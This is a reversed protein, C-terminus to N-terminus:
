YGLKRMEHEVLELQEPTNVSLSECPKLVPLADVAYGAQRLISPCDTLYFENQANHSQLKELSWQLDCSDFVYTSMNVERNKKQEETADREEVIQQFNGEGNRVIRGLGAPQTHHLSGVLCSLKRDVFTEVLTTVSDAQLLPSDGTVIVVPGKHQQLAAACMKVAHGTGLQEHQTVFSINAHDAFEARVLAERYGVVMVIKKIGSSNLARVVHAVLPRHLAPLLVKPLESHMRTGKGAALIIAMVDSSPEPIRDPASSDSDTM